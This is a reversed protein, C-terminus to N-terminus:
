YKCKSYWDENVSLGLLFERIQEDTELEEGLQRYHLRDFAENVLAEESMAKLASFGNIVMAALQEDKQDTNLIDDVILNTCHAIM